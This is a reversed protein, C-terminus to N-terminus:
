PWASGSIEPKKTATFAPASGALPELAPADITTLFEVPSRWGLASHPRNANDHHRWAAIEDRAHRLSRFWHLNLCEDRMKGNLSAVFANQVPKGPAIFRLRVATRESWDFM